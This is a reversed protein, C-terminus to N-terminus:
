AKSNDPCNDAKFSNFRVGFIKLNKAKKLILECKSQGKCANKM